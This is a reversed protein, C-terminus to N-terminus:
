TVLRSIVALFSDNFKARLADGRAAPTALRCNFLLFRTLVVSVFLHFCCCGDANYGRREAKIPGCRLGALASREFWGCGGCAGGVGSHQGHALGGVGLLVEESEDVLLVVLGSAGGALCEVRAHRFYSWCGLQDCHVAAVGGLLLDNLLELQLCGRHGQHQGDRGVPRHSGPDFPCVEGFFPEQISDCARTHLLAQLRQLLALEGEDAQLVGVGFGVVAGHFADVVELGIGLKGFLGLYDFHVRAVGLFGLQECLEFRVRLSFRGASSEKGRGAHDNSLNVPGRGFGRQLGESFFAMAAHLPAGPQQEGGFYSAGTM